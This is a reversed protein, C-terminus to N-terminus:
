FLIGLKNKWYQEEAMVFDAALLFNYTQDLAGGAVPPLGKEYLRVYKIVEWIETNIFELPCQTIDVQGANNCESCGTGKCILCTM